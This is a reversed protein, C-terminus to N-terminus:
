HGEKALNKNWAPVVVVLDKSGDPVCQCSLRSEPTVGRARAYDQLAQAVAHQNADAGCGWDGFCFLNLAGAEAAHDAGWLVRPTMLAAGFMLGARLMERRTLHTSFSM